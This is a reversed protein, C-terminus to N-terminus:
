CAAWSSCFAMSCRFTVQVLREEEEEEEKLHKRRRKKKM